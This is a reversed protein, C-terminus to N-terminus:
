SSTKRFTKKLFYDYTLSSMNIPHLRVDNMNRLFDKFYSQLFNLITVNQKGDGYEIRKRKKYSYKIYTVNM